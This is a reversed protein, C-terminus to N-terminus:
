VERMEQPWSNPYCECFLRHIHVTTKVSFNSGKESLVSEIDVKENEIDDEYLVYAAVYINQNYLPSVAGNFKILACM